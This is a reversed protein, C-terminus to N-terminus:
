LERAGLVKSAAAAINPKALNEPGIVPVGCSCTEVLEQGRARVRAIVYLFERM